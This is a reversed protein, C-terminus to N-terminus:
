TKGTVSDQPSWERDTKLFIYILISVIYIKYAICFNINLIFIPLLLNLSPYVAAWCTISVGTITPTSALSGPAKVVLESKQRWKEAVDAKRIGILILISNFHSGRIFSRLNNWDNKLKPQFIRPVRVHLVWALFRKRWFYKAQSLSLKNVM